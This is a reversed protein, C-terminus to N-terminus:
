KLETEWIESPKQVRASEQTSIALPPNAVGVKKGSDQALKQLFPTLDSYNDGYALPELIACDRFQGHLKRQDGARCLVFHRYRAKSLADNAWKLLTQFNPDFFTGICGVFLLSRFQAFERMLAQLESDKSIAYYSEHDLVITKPEQWWGHLHFIFDTGKTRVREVVEDLQQWHLPPRKTVETHLGDYNLTAILGGLDVIANILSPDRAKLQGVSARLWNYRSHGEKRDLWEFVQRAADILGATTKKRLQLEIM